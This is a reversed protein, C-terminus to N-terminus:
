PCLAQHPSWTHLHSIHLIPKVYPMNRLLPKPEEWVKNRFISFIIRRTSKKPDNSYEFLRIKPGDIYSDIKRYFTQFSGNWVYWLWLVYLPLFSPKWTVSKSNKAYSSIEIEVLWFASNIMWYFDSESRVFHHFSSTVHKKWFAVNPKNKSIYQSM